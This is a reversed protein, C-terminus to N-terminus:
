VDLEERGANHLRFGIVDGHHVDMARGPSTVAQGQRDAADAFTLMAVDLGLDTADSAPGEVGGAIRLLNRAGGIRALSQRLWPVVAATPAPGIFTPPGDEGGARALGTAPMLYLRGDRPLPQHLLWDAEGPDAVVRFPMGRVDRADDRTRDERPAN